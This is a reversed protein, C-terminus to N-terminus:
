SRALSVVDFLLQSDLCPVALTRIVYDCEAKRPEDDCGIPRRISCPSTIGPPEAGEKMHHQLHWADM